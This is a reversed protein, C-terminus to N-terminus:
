HICVLKHTAFNTLGSNKKRGHVWRFHLLISVSIFDSDIESCGSCLCGGVVFLNHVPLLFNRCATNCM